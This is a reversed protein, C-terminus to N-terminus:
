FGFVDTPELMQSAITTLYGPNTADLNQTTGTPVWSGNVDGKLIGVLGVSTASQVSQQTAASWVVSNRTLTSAGANEDWLDQTQDVFLWEQAPAGAAKVAMRLIALADASTIKGDKNADAAILQYPSLKLAQQPGAGDPDPNPNIGVAIRLAALADASSIASGTDSTGRTATFGYNGLPVVGFDFHGDTGTTQLRETLTIPSASANGLQINSIEASASTTGPALTIKLAGLQVSGTVGQTTTNGDFGGVLLTDGSQNSLLSWDADLASTFLMTTGPARVNFDVNATPSALNAWVQATVSNDGADYLPARLDFLDTNSAAATAADVAQATVGSMLVHSKWFYAMGALDAGSGDTVTATATSTVSEAHGFGDTYSATVTVTKGLDAATLQYTSGTGVVTAGERWQYTITGLGDLDALTNSATLVQNQIPSGSITVTGTPADNVNVVAGTATSTVSEAHGTGDTYSATVSVAKGVQAQALVLTTGTAGAISQGDALWQYTITGLGDADQLTNSATLTQGQTNSGSISVAGTPPDNVNLVPSSAASTVSEAHGFGDTYSVQVTIAKGVQAQGLLLTSQNANAIAQGATFWQYAFTGLGDLDALTNNISLTQGQTASGAIVVSGTPADNVNAVAGSAASTVAEQHQLGDTYSIRVSVQQGVQAQQLVLTQSTAGSIPNGNALWQYSFAGLGDADALTNNATLTQGQTLTGAITVTGTPLNNPATVVATPASTMSEAHGFNDTYNAIVSIVKGLQATTLVFSGGSAGAIPTGDALWVYTTSGRGDLDVISDTVTLTQGRVPSGGITITGTPADNVNLVQSTGPSTVSEAHGGLDTYQITVRIGNSNVDAQTLTYTSSTAGGISVGNTYGWQYSFTGLGDPDVLASTDVSLVDGQKPQDGGPVAVTIGGSPHVNLTKVAPTAASTFTYSTGGGDTYTLKVTIQKGVETATPAISALNSFPIAVGDAFWQYNVIPMGDADGIGGAFLGIGVQPYGVDGFGTIALTGTPADDVAVGQFTVHGESVSGEDDQVLYRFTGLNGTFNPGPAFTLGALQSATLVQGVNVQSGDALKITGLSGPTGSVTITPTGGDPDTPAGLGLATTTDEVVGLIKDAAPLPAAANTSVLPTFAQVTNAATFASPAVSKLIAFARFVAGNAAGDADDELVTDSGCATLRLYGAAFPNAGGPMGLQNLRTVVAGLDLKDGGNGAHFDFITAPTYGAEIAGLGLQVVDIDSDTPVVNPSQPDPFGALYLSGGEFHITDAGTGDAVRNWDGFSSISDNGAGGDMTDYGFDAFSNQNSLLTDNGDGGSLYFTGDPADSIGLRDDGAGGLLTSRDGSETIVDNDDGGDLTDNIGANTITDAGAGGMLWDSGSLKVSLSANNINDNGAGGDVTDNGEGADIGDNGAGGSISDNGTRGYLVDDGDDGFITDNGANGTIADGGDGGHLVDDGLGGDIADQGGSASNDTTDGWLTDNGDNGDLTDQGVGGILVDNGGWGGDISDNGGLGDITDAGDSAYASGLPSGGGITDDGSGGGISIGTTAGAPAFHQTFNDATFASATTDHLVALDTWQQGDWPGGRDIQVRTDAGDQLLRMWGTTFPNSYGYGRGLMTDGAPYWAAVQVSGLEQLRQLVSGLDLQDGGAGTHFDWVEPAAGGGERNRLSLKLVDVDSDTPVVGSQPGPLGALYITGTGNSPNPVPQELVIRDAGAGGAVLNNAGFVNVVDNGAGGDLTDFGADLGHTTLTDNGEGGQMLVRAYQVTVSLSDNGAGGILTASVDNSSSLTDNDDGGDLTDATGSSTILDNGAGGMLLDSGNPLNAETDDSLRDNGAGGQLTDAGDGGTLVDNDAGGDLSDNGANGSLSDAGDDGFQTDNGARGFLNDNDDGGHLVDDGLGGDIYDGAGAASRDTTDGWLTDNGDNGLLTDFGAGGILVDNGGFGGDISDNGAVGNITDSGDTPFAGDLGSTSTVTDNGATGTIAVPTAFGTPSVRPTFNDLTFALASTNAIVALDVWAAGNAPGTKDVQLHTDAGAQVLRLWGTTFPNTYGYGLEALRTLVSGLDIKDGGAGTHFDYIQPAIGTAELNRLSLAVVDIAADTPVAGGPTDPLGALYITGTGHTQSGTELTIVDAGTGGAVLNGVGNVSITDNGSGGDITDAGSGDTISDNGDGGEFRYAGAGLTPMGSLVANATVTDDGLGGRLTAQTGVAILLDNGDGGDLLDGSGFSTLHDNGLGGLLQNTGAVDSIWDDGEGGTLTDNGADGGITDNGTGGDVSDDGANGGLIDDGGDGFITDNGDGGTVNEYVVGKYNIAVFRDDGDGAHIVDDGGGGALLDTSGPASNDTTDGWLTDNGDLGILTDSGAGGVLLDDGGFGGEILDNGALGNITDAGGGATGGTGASTDSITDNGATGTISKGTNDFVSTFNKAAFDSQASPSSLDLNKLIALDIYAAGGAPGDKDVRLKADTGSQVFQLWGTTFPNSFTFGLEAMRALVLSIDLKDGGPGAHFDYIVPAAAAGELARLSLRVTDVDTDTTSQSDPLGALYITGTGNPGNGELSIFDAGAGGAVVNGTGSVTITDNGAGGDITDAGSGDLISDNGDGGELRYTGAGQTPIGAIGWSATVTDDGIGGRLTAQSGIAIVLDNGDGGDLLDGAGYSLLTDNGLGGLLQQNAGGEDAINDNGDGGSLTDNGLGGGLADNGTGGDLVDDGTDGYLYDNGAEGFITDDGAGGNVGGDFRAGKAFVTSVSGDDGDGAHILDNGLGGSIADADGAASNDTTDGWLTDNGDFGVLTDQGAGGVLLDAGGFGGDLSDNGALGNATDNGDTGAYTNANADGSFTEGSTNGAPFVRAPLFNDVTFAAPTTNRLIALDQWNAGNSPGSTDVQLITDAGSALLRMWGTTFPNGYLYANFSGLSTLLATIELRDGGAGTTFDTIDIRTAGNQLQPANLVVTDVGGGLTLTGSATTFGDGIEIRDDGAGADVTISVGKLRITDNGAAGVITSSTNAEVVDDGAGADVYNSAGVTVTDNGSGAFVVNAGLADDIRDDGAGAIMTDNDAGGSISDNEVASVKALETFTILAPTANFVVNTVGAVLRDDGAGGDLQDHGSGADLTDSGDGGQLWDDGAGASLSDNGTGGVLTDGQSSGTLTDNESGGDALGGNSLSISDNGAEGYYRGGGSTTGNITDNGAGANVTDNGGALSISDNGYGTSITSDPTAPAGDFPLQSDTVTDDGDLTVIRGSGAVSNNLVAGDLTFPPDFNASVLVNGQGALTVGRLVAVVQYASGNSPGTPDVWLEVDAGNQVFKMWSNTGNVVRSGNAAFQTLDILPNRGDFGAPVLDALLDHIRLVDGGAGAKFDKIDYIGYAQATALSIAVTDGGVRTVDGSTDTWITGAGRIFDNGAGGELSNTNTGGDVYDNGAGGSITSSGAATLVDNGAGGFIRNSTGGSITDDGGAASATDTFDGYLVNAGQTDVILDAGDGGILTDDGASGSFQDNGSTGTLSDANSTGTFSAM